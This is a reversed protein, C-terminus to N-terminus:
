EGRFRKWWGRVTSVAQKAAQSVSEAANRVSSVVLDPFSQAAPVGETSFYFAFRTLGTNGQGFREFPRKNNIYFGDSRPDSVRFAGVPFGSVGLDGRVPGRITRPRPTVQINYYLSDSATTTGGDRRAAFSVPDISFRITRPPYSAPPNPFPEPSGLDGARSRGTLRPASIVYNITIENDNVTALSDVFAARSSDINNGVVGDRLPLKADVRALDIGTSDEVMIFRGPGDDGLAGRVNYRGAINQNFILKITGVSDARIPERPSTFTQGGVTVGVLRIGPQTNFIIPNVPPSFPTGNVDFLDSIILRYTTGAELTRSTDTLGRM